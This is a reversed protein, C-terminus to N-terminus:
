ASRTRQSISESRVIEIFAKKRVYWDFDRKRRGSTTDEYYRECDVVARWTNSGSPPRVRVTTATKPALLPVSEFELSRGEPPDHWKGSQKVETSVGCRLVFPGGNSIVFLALPHDPTSDFKQFSLTVNGIAAQRTPSRWYMAALVPILLGGLCLLLTRKM